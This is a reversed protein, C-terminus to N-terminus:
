DSLRKAPRTFASSMLVIADASQWQRVDSEQGDLPM